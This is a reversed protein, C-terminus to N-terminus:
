ADPLIADDASDSAISRMAVLCEYQVRGARGGTGVRRLNWGGTVGKNRGGALVAVATATAGTFSHGAQAGTGVSALNIYAASAQDVDTASLQITTTNAITVYYATNNALGGIATNGTGVLYTVADGNSFLATNTLGLTIVGKHTANGVTVSTSNGSFSIASPAAIVVTPPSTFGSGVQNANVVSIRGSANATANATASTGGGGTLTVAANAAYGTGPSVIIYEAITTGTVQAEASSAAFLGVEQGVVYANVSTNNFLANATTTNSVVIALASPAWKVVNSSNETQGWQAM